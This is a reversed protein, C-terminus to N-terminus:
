LLIYKSEEGNNSSEEAIIKGKMLKQLHHRVNVEAAKLLHKPTSIYIQNVLEEASLGNPQVLELAELIQKERLMRHQIYEQVKSKPNKIVPGHGPYIIDLDMKMIKELSLMYDYLDEFVATGEGLICDGSFLSNEEELHLVLHDDTHGPAAIVRLTAGETTVVDEDKLYHYNINPVVSLNEVGPARRFKSVTCDSKLEQLIDPVGGIHDLHWHTVIINHLSCNQEKLVNKLLDIYEPVSPNGCDLLIRKKGTGIIYTNTGQLTMPSPNCGLIRIIRNSLHSIKPIVSTM